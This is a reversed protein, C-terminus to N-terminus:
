EVPLYRDLYEEVKQLYAAYVDDDNQLGHGSHEAVLYEHPVGHETLAADLRVSAAYPQLTDYRGYAMVTPVTQDDVWLLASVPKVAEDWAPTGLMDPTLESGTMVSFLGCAEKINDPNDFGYNSWDEPYFSSPGVAEFVMRVPVPSTVADRYGYILALCGGASGGAVAMQDVNYGADQAAKVVYPMADRIEESQTLVNADPNDDSFLTYDIGAAVYGKSCLWELIQEDDDKDGSTFGGAHLYVVLGYHDRSSDAPLYLDFKNASKDGYSLDAQKTGVADSWAVTYHRLSAPKILLKSAVGGAFALAFVLIGLMLFKGTGKRKREARREARREKRAAKEEATM